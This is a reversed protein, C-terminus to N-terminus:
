RTPSNKLRKVLQRARLLTVEDSRGLRSCPSTVQIGSIDEKVDYFVAGVLLGMCISVTLHLGLLAPNRVVNTIERRYLVGLETIM